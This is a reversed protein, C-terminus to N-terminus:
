HFDLEVSNQKFLTDDWRPIIDTFFATSKHQVWRTREVRNAQLLQHAVAPTVCLIAQRQLELLM